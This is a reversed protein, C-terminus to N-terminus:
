IEPQVGLSAVCYGSKRIGRSPNYIPTNSKLTASGIRRYEPLGKKQRNWRERTRERWEGGKGENKEEEFECKGNANGGGETV